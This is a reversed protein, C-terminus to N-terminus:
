HLILVTRPTCKKDVFRSMAGASLEEKILLTRVPGLDESFFFCGCLAGELSTSSTTGLVRTPMTLGFPSRRLLGGRDYEDIRRECGKAHTKARSVTVRRIIRVSIVAM